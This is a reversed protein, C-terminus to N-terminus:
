IEKIEILDFIGRGLVATDCDGTVREALPKHLATAFCASQICHETDSIQNLLKINFTKKIPWPLEDDYAGKM